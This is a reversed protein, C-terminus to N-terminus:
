VASWPLATAVQQTFSAVEFAGPTVPLQLNQAAVNITLAGIPVGGPVVGPLTRILSLVYDYDVLGNIGLPTNQDTGGFYAQLRQQLTQQALPLQNQKVQISGSSLGLTIARQTTTAVAVNDTLMQLANFFQQVAAVTTAVAPIGNQGAIIVHVLNNITGDTIAFALAVNQSAAIALLVYANGTPSVPIANGNADKPFALAPWMGAAQQGMSQATQATQGTQLIDSGPTTFYYATGQVFSPNGSNDALTVTIGSGVTASAGFQTTSWAGGDIAYQWGATAGAITGSQVIQISVAHAGSPTGSPTVTGVGPGAQAVASYTTQPNTVTLGPFNATVLAISAGSPDSNYTSSSSYTFESRFVTTLTGPVAGAAAPITVTQSVAAASSHAAAATGNAGRGLGTFSTATLGSYTIQEQDVQVTGSPPFGSTSSVVMTTDSAAMASSLSTTAGQLFYRNGSPFQVIIAGPKLNSYATNSTNTLTFQRLTYTAPSQIGGYRQKFLIPAWGTVDIPAGGPPTPVSLRGFVYDEFNAYTLTAIAIHANVRLLAVAMGMARYAGGLFWDTVRVALGSPPNQLAPLLEQNWVQLQTPIMTLDSFQPTGM